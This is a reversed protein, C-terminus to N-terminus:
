IGNRIFFFPVGKSCRGNVLVSYGKRMGIKSRQMRKVATFESDDNFGVVLKKVAM